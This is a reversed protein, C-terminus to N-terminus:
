RKNPPECIVRRTLCMHRHASPKQSPGWFGYFSGVMAVVVKVVVEEEEEEEVDGLVFGIWLGV